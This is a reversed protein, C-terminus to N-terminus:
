AGGGKGAERLAASITGDIEEAVRELACEYRYRMAKYGDRQLDRDEVGCLLGKGYDGEGLVAPTRWGKLKRLAEQL